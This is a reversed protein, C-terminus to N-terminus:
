PDASELRTRQTRITLIVTSLAHRLITLAREDTAAKDVVRRPVAFSKGMEGPLDIRLTYRDDTAAFDALRAGPDLARVLGAVSAHLSRSPEDACM